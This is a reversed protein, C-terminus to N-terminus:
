GLVGEGAEHGAVGVGDGGKEFAHLAGAPDCALAVFGVAAGFADAEKGGAFAFEFLDAFDGEGELGFDEGAKGFLFALFEEL